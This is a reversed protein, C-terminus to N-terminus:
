TDEISPPAVTEEGLSADRFVVVPNELDAPEAGEALSVESTLAAWLDVSAPNAPSSVGRPEKHVSSLFVLGAVVIVLIAVVAVLARRRSRGGSSSSVGLAM